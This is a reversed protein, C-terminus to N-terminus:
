ALFTERLSSLNHDVSFKSAMTTPKSDVYYLRETAEQWIFNQINWDIHISIKSDVLPQLKGKLQSKLHSYQSLFVGEMPEVVDFLRIGRIREQVIAPTLYMGFLWRSCGLVVFRTQPLSVLGAAELRALQLRHVLLFHAVDDGFSARTIAFSSFRHLAQELNEFRELEENARIDEPDTVGRKVFKAFDTRGRDSPVKVILEGLSGLRTFLNPQSLNLSPVRYGVGDTLDSLRLPSPLESLKTTM